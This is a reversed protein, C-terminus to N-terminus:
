ESKEKVRESRANKVKKVIKLIGANVQFLSMCFYCFYLFVIAVYKNKLPATHKNDWPGPCTSVTWVRIESTLVKLSQMSNDDMCVKLITHNLHKFM